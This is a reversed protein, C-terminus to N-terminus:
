GIIRLQGNEQKQIKNRGVLYGITTSLLKRKSKAPSTVKPMVLDILASAEVGDNAKLTELILATTDGRRHAARNRSARTDLAEIALQPSLPGVAGSEEARVEAAIEELDAIVRDLKAIRAKVRAELDRKEHKLDRVVKDYATTKTM